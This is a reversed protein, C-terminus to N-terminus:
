PLIFKAWLDARRIGDGSALKVLYLNGPILDDAPIEQGATEAEVPVTCILRGAPDYVLLRREEDSTDPLYATVTTGSCLVTFRKDTKTEGPLTRVHTVTGPASTHPECGKEEHCTVYYYYDTQPTLGTLVAEGAPAELPYEEDSYLFVPRQETTLALTQLTIEGEGEILRYTLRLRNYERQPDLTFTATLSNGTARIFVSDIRQWRNGSYGYLLLQGVTRTKSLTYTHTLSVTAESIPLPSRPSLYRDGTQRMVQDITLTQTDPEDAITYLTLFYSEADEQEEWNATFSYPTTGTAERSKVEQILTQRVATGKLTTQTSQVKNRTGAYFLASQNDCEVLSNFRLYINRHYTSDARVRDWLTDSTWKLSDFSMQFTKRTTVFYLVSDQLQYGNVPLTKIEYVSPHHRLVATSLQMIQELQLHLGSGDDEGYHFTINNEETQRINTLEHWPMSIGDYTVPTFVTINYQGPYTDSPSSQVPKKYYAECIDYGLPLTNNPTNNEWKGKHFVIHSVLLGKGPLCNDPADWGVPQRNELLWYEKPNPSLVHMNHDTDAILYAQNSTTLPEILYDAAKTLQKPTLWGLIWREYASFSPPTRGNNNYNGSCMIDWEGITYIESDATNYLDDLGLVHSFEHCFTGIGCQHSGRSDSLESTCAYDWIWVDDISYRYYKKDKESWVGAQSRHPWVADEPGGEAPNHGAYYVFINDIDGDKNVDYQKFDVGDDDAESCADVIMEAARSTYYSREHPLTYPGYVDFTPRFQNNSNSLFYDRASGTGGNDHYGKENLMKTFAERPNPVVFQVDQYNVLIVISRVDGTRPFTTTIAPQQPRTITSPVRAPVRMGQKDLRYHFYEDGYVGSGPKAIVAFASPAALLLLLYLFLHRRM